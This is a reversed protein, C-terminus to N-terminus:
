NSWRVRLNRQARIWLFRAPLLILPCEKEGAAAPCTDAPNKRCIQWLLRIFQWWACTCLSLNCTHESEPQPRCM